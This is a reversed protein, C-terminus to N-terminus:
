DAEGDDFDEEPEPGADLAPLEHGADLAAWAAVDAAEFDGARGVEMRQPVLERRIALIDKLDLKNLREPKLRDELETDIRRLIRNTRAKTFEAVVAKVDPRQLWKKITDPHVSWEEALEPRSMGEAYAKAFLELM